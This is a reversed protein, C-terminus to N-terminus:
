GQRMSRRRQAVLGVALLGAGLMLASSAEPVPSFDFRLAMGSYKFDGWASSVRGDLTGAGGWNILHEVSGALFATGTDVEKLFAFGDGHIFAVERWHPDVDDSAYLWLTASNLTASAWASTDYAVSFDDGQLWHLTIEPQVDEFQATQAQVDLAILGLLLTALCHPIRM